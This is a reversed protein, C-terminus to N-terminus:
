MCSGGRLLHYKCPQNYHASSCNSSKITATENHKNHRQTRTQSTNYLCHARLLPSVQVRHDCEACCESSSSSYFTFLQLHRLFLLWSLSSSHIVKQKLVLDSYDRCHSCCKGRNVLSSWILWKVTEWELWQISCAHNFGNNSGLTGNSSMTGSVVGLFFGLCPSWPGPGNM